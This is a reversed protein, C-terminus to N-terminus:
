AWCGRNSQNTRRCRRRSDIQAAVGLASIGSHDRCDVDAGAKILAAVVDTHGQVAATMLTECFIYNYSLAIKKMAVRDEM